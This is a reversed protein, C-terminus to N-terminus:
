GKQYQMRRGEVYVQLKNLIDMDGFFTFLTKGEAEEEQFQILLDQLAQPAIKRMKQENLFHKHDQDLRERISQAYAYCKDGSSGPLVEFTFFRAKTQNFGPPSAFLAWCKNCRSAGFLLEFESVPYPTFVDVQAQGSIHGSVKSSKRETELVKENQAYRISADLGLDSITTFKPTPGTTM